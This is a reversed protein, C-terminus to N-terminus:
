PKLRLLARRPALLLALAAAAFTLSGAWCAACHGLWEGAEHVPAGCWADALARELPTQTAWTFWGVLSPWAAAAIFSALAFLRTRLTMLAGLNRDGPPLAGRPHGQTRGEHM